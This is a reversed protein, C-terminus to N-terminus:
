GAVAAIGAEVTDTIVVVEDAGSATLVRLVNDQPAALAVRGGKTTISRGAVLLTRLGMSALFTVGSLDVVVAKKSGALVNFRMDIAQAGEIDLRGSLAVKTVGNALDETSMDMM